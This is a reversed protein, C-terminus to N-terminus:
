IEWTLVIKLCTGKLFFVLRVLRQSHSHTEMLNEFVFHIFVGSM